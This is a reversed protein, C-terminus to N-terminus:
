KGQGFEFEVGLSSKPFDVPLQPLPNALMVARIAAQDFLYDGSSTAIEIKSLQGNRGIRFYVVSKKAISLRSSYPPEWNSQIRSKMLGLYYSFPFEKVDLRVKETSVTSKGKDSKEPEEKQIIPQEEPKEEVLKPKEITVGELKKPKPKVTRKQPAIKKVDPAKFSVPELKILEVPM